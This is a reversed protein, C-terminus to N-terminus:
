KTSAELTKDDWTLTDLAALCIGLPLSEYFTVVSVGDISISWGTRKDYGYNVDYSIGFPVGKGTFREVVTFAAAIDTSPSWPERGSYINPAHFLFKESGDPLIAWTSRLEPKDIANESWKRKFVQWGMVKEAILADLDRGAKLENTM